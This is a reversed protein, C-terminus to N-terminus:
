IHIFLDFQPMGDIDENEMADAWNIKRTNIVNFGQPANSDEALLVQLPVKLGKTKKSKGKGLLVCM